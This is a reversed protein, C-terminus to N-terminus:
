NILYEQKILDFPTGDSLLKWIDTVTSYFIPEHVNKLYSLRLDSIFKRVNTYEQAILQFPIGYHLLTWFEASALHHQTKIDEIEPTLKSITENVRVYEQLIQQFPIQNLLLPWIEESATKQQSPSLTSIFARVNEYERQILEFPLGCCLLKAVETFASERWDDPFHSTFNQIDNYKSLIIPYPIGNALLKLVHQGVRNPVTNLSDIVPMNSKLEPIQMLAAIINEGITDIVGLQYYKIGSQVWPHSAKKLFHMEALTMLRVGYQEVYNIRPSFLNQHLDYSEKYLKKALEIPNLTITTHNLSMNATASFPNIQTHGGTRPPSEERFRKMTEATYINVSGIIIALSAYTIIKM